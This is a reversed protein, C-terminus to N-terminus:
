STTGREKCGVLGATVIRLQPEASSKMLQPEALTKILSRLRRQLLKYLAWVRLRRYPAGLEKPNDEVLQQLAERELCVYQTLSLSKYVSEGTYELLLGM